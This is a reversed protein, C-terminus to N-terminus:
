RPDLAIVPITRQATREYGAFSPMLDTQRVWIEERESGETVRARVQTTDPGFEITVDPAAILDVYWAPETTAGGKSAFIAWGETLPLCTLPVIYPEGSATSTVHLLLVPVGEFNGGLRGANARFEEIYPANRSAPDDSM